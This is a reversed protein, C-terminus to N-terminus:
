DIVWNPTKEKSGSWGWDKLLEIFVERDYIENNYPESLISFAYGNLSIEDILHEFSDFSNSIVIGNEGGFNEILLLANLESGSRLTTTFPAIIKIDLDKAAIEWM